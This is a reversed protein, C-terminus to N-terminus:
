LGRLPRTQIQSRNLRPRKSKCIGISTHPVQFLLVQFILAGFVLVRRRSGTGTGLLISVGLLIANVDDRRELLVLLARDVITVGVRTVVRFLGRLRVCRLLSCWGRAKPLRTDTPTKM